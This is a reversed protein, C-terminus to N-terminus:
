SDRKEEFYRKLIRAKAPNLIASLQAESAASIGELSKFETYLKKISEEGIGPIKDLSSVIMAGSRKLRHFEIGFRHAENRLHQILKLSESNKDIYLPIPDDPFYIEELKKAIGILSIKKRLGLKELSKLAASLQGKGGDIIILQPLVKKEELLRRYRRYIVEEMSAFDNAGKVTKINFHRYERKAPRANKFVVCAAVPNSGQINSNDFCEIHVPLENMRLDNKLTELIRQSPLNQKIATERKQKELKYIRANRESLELLKKKDGQKPLIIKYGPLEESLDIPLIIERARSHVKEQLDIVALRLIESTSENLRKQIELTHAQVVAGKTIKLYNVIAYKEEDVISFVDVNNISPNVITSKTQFRLLAELKGKLKEAEEFKYEKAYEEMKKKLYSIVDHLNGKLIEHIQDISEAYSSEDQFGECPGLCNEIHFELCTKFKGAEINEKSLNHKCTRLQYLQRVLDLLTRATSASTYPGYYKSGDHIVNRTLFVRPFAENKICIWPFTKDDKLLINYRPQLKKILNNELLLADAESNVVFHRIEAIKEVLVKVKFSDYEKKQFYSSVRKKLNKAKGVYLIKGRSDFFQYVGPDEPLTKVSAQINERVSSSM